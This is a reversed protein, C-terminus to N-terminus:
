EGQNIISNIDKRAYEVGRQVLDNVMDGYTRFSGAAFMVGIIFIFFIIGTILSKVTSSNGKVLKWSQIVLFIVLGLAVIPALFHIINLLIKETTYM